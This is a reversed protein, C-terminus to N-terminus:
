ETATATFSVKLTYVTSSTPADTPVKDADAKIVISTGDATGTFTLASDEECTVTIDSLTYGTPVNNSNATDIMTVITAVENGATKYTKAATDADYTTNFIVTGSASITYVASDGDKFAVQFYTADTDDITANNTTASYAYAAGTMAVGCLLLVVLPVLYKKKSSSEQSYMDTM